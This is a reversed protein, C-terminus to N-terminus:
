RASTLESAPHARSTSGRRGATFWLLGGIPGLLLVGLTHGWQQRVITEVLPWVVLLVFVPLMLVVLLLLTGNPVLFNSALPAPMAATHMVM